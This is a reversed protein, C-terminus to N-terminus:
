DDTRELVQVTFGDHDDAPLLRWVGPGAVHEVAPRRLDGAIDRRRFGPRSELFAAAVAENEEPEISCTIMVLLGGPRVCEAAGRVMALGEDSLRDIEAASIRWKLEPHKRLTGTGSCPLDVVVRDFVPGFPLAVGDAALLRPRLRLRAANRSMTALRGLSRDAATSRVDPQEALLAFTKGGPAAAVDLVQEGPEPRPLIAALQSAEDQVYFDGQRYADSHLPNGWRVTVCHPALVSPEVGVDDDILQEALPARGGRDRFALLHLPKPRNNAGLLAITREEGYTSLWREVLLDPHSYHIGLRTTRDAADAPWDDRRPSRAIRRLVGNVFSAGGAHTRSGAQEVAENVAAHPPVRDLFFLQYAGIRLPALLARQIRDLPRQSAAVLAHDIFRLWRLTGLVLERLLAHDRPDCRELAGDLFTSVPAKSDLTRELVFAASERVKAHATMATDRRRWGGRSDLNRIARRRTV